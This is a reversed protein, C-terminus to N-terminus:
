NYHLHADFIEIPEDAGARDVTGTLFTLAVLVAVSRAASRLARGFRMM